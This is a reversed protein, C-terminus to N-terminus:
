AARALGLARARIPNIYPKPTWAEDDDDDLAYRWANPAGTRRVEGGKIMRTLADHTAKRSAGIRWSVDALTQPGHTDLVDRILGMIPRAPKVSRRPKTTVHFVAVLRNAGVRPRLEVSFYGARVMRHCSASLVASSMTVGLRARLEAVTTGGKKHQVIRYLQDALTETSM